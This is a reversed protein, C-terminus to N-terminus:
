SEESLSMQGARLDATDDRAQAGHQGVQGSITSCLNKEWIKDDRAVKM